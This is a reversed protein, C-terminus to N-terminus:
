EGLIYRIPLNFYVSVEKGNHKGPNWKPMEAVVRISEEELGGGKHPGVTRINNVSGDSAVVFTVFITGTINQEQAKGPYRIKQSLFRALAEEGGPFTPPHSVFTFVEDGAHQAAAVGAAASSTVNMEKLDLDQQCGIIFALLLGLPFVIFKKMATYNTKHTFLMRIRRKVPAQAFSNILLVRKTQLTMQLLTRAYDERPQRATAAKDALFEHVMGLEKKLLHFFPNIWCISCVLQMFLKDATHRAQVHELEHKLIQQGEPSEPATEEGWFIDKFFSFTSQVRPHRILRYGDFSTPTGQRALQRIRVWSRAMNILLLLSVLAYIGAPLWILANGLGAQQKDSVYAYVIILPANYDPLPAASLSFQLFPLLLCAVTALLIYGRNWRHFPNNKLALAYYGYLVGSCILLKIFYSLLATM